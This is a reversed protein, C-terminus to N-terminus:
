HRFYWFTHVGPDEDLDLGQEADWALGIDIQMRAYIDVGRGKDKEWVQTTTSNISPNLM